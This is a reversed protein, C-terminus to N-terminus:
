PQTTACKPFGFGLKLLISSAAPAQSQVPQSLREANIQGFCFGRGSLEHVHETVIIDIM